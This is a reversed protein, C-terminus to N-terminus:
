YLNNGSDMDCSRIHHQKKERRQWSLLLVAGNMLEPGPSCQSGKAKSRFAGSLMVSGNVGSYQAM